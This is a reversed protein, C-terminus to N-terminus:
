TIAKERELGTYVQDWMRYVQRWDYHAEVWRRGTITEGVFARIDGM